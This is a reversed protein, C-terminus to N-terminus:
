RNKSYIVRLGKLLLDDDLIIGETRCCPVISSAMGGTAVVTCEYGIEQQMKELMGDIMSATGYVAGSRMCDATNSGIVKKPPTISINPLLSTGSALASYSIKVGPIIAGGRFANDKDVITITTATGIDIVIVPAGYQSVAGVSGTILDAGISSPDDIRINLGTKIGPGVVVPDVGALKKVAQRLPETIEPVVSSIIAGEFGRCDVGNLEFIQQFKIAYEEGTETRDTHLRVVHSFGDEEICGVVINTNGVDIGLIM